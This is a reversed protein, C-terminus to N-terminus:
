SSTQTKHPLPMWGKADVNRSVRAILYFPELNHIIFYLRIPMGHFMFYM